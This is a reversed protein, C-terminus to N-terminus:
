ILGKTRKLRSRVTDVQKPPCWLEGTIDDFYTGVYQSEEMTSANLILHTVRYHDPKEVIVKNGKVKAVEGSNASDCIECINYKIEYQSCCIHLINIEKM